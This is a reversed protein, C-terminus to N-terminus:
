IRKDFDVDSYYSCIEKVCQRSVFQIGNIKSRGKSALENYSELAKQILDSM